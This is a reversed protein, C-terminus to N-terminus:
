SLRFVPRLFFGFTAQYSWGRLRAQLYLGKELKSEQTETSVLRPGAGRILRDTSNLFPRTGAYWLSSVAQGVGVRIKIESTRPILGLAKHMGPESGCSRGRWLRLRQEAITKKKLRLRRINGLSEREHALSIREKPPRLSSKCLVM